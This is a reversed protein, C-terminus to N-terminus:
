KIFQKILRLANAEGEQGSKKYTKSFLKGCIFFFVIIVIIWATDPM